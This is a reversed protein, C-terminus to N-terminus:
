REEAYDTIMWQRQDRQVVIHVPIRAAAGGSVVEVSTVEVVFGTVEYSDSGKKEVSAIEIRDPWPSSVLRGPAKTVDKEWADLLNRAVFESYQTEIEQAANPSLLSVAQLKRGFSIVLDRIQAEEIVDNAITQTPTVTTATLNVNPLDDTKNTTQGMETAQVACAALLVPILWTLFIKKM